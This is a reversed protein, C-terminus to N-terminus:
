FCTEFHQRARARASLVPPPPPWEGREGREFKENLFKLAGKRLKQGNCNRQRNDKDEEEKKRYVNFKKELRKVFFRLFAVCLMCSNHTICVAEYIIWLEPSRHSLPALELGAYRRVSRSIIPSRTTTTICTTDITGRVELFCVRKVATKKKEKATSIMAIASGELSRTWNLDIPKIDTISNFFFFFFVRLM